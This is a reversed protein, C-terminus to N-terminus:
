EYSLGQKVESVESGSSATPLQSEMESEKPPLPLHILKEGSDSASKEDFFGFVLDGRNDTFFNFFDSTSYYGYSCGEIDALKIGHSEALKCIFDAHEQSECKGYTNTLYERGINKTNFDNYNDFHEGEFGGGIHTASTNSYVINIQGNKNRGIYPYTKNSM